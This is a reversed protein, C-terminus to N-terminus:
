YRRTPPENARVGAGVQLPVVIVLAWCAMQAWGALVDWAYGLDFDSGFLSFAVTVLLVGWAILYSRRVQATRYRVRAALAGSLAIMAVSLPSVLAGILLSILVGPTTSQWLQGISVTRNPPQWRAQPPPAFWDPTGPQPFSPAPQQPPPFNPTPPATAAPVEPTVPNGLPQDPTWVPPTAGGVTRASGWGSAATVASSITTFETRPDRPPLSTAPVLTELPAVSAQPPQWAPPVLPAGAAPNPVAPPTELPAVAPTQFAAPRDLPAYEPGDTWNAM